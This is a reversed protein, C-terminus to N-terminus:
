QAGTTPSKKLDSLKKKRLFHPKALDFWMRLSELGFLFRKQSKKGPNVDDEVSSLSNNRLGSTLQNSYNDETSETGTPSNPNMM